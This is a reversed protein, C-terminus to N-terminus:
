STFALWFRDVLENEEVLENAASANFYKATAATFSLWKKFVQTVYFFQM